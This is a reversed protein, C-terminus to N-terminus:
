PTDGQSIRTLTSEAINLIKILRSSTTGPLDGVAIINRLTKELDAIRGDKDFDLAPTYAHTM